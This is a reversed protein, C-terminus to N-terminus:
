RELPQVLQDPEHGPDLGARQGLQPAHRGVARVLNGRARDHSGRRHASRSTGHTRIQGHASRSPTM